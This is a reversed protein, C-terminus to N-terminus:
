QEVGIAQAGMGLLFVGNKRPKEEKHGCKIPSVNSSRGWLPFGRPLWSLPIQCRFTSMQFLSSHQNKGSQFENTLNPLVVQVGGAQRTTNKM